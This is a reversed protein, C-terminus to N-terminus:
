YPASIKVGYALHGILKKSLKSTHTKANDLVVIPFDEEDSYIEQLM